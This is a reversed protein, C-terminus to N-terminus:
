GRARPGDTRLAGAARAVAASDDRSGNDVVIIQVLDRPYDNAAISALCVELRRADDRVPIVFSFRQRHAPTM